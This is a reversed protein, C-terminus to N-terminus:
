NFLHPDFYNIFLKQISNPTRRNLSVSNLPAQYSFGQESIHSSSSLNLESSKFDRLNFNNSALYYVPYISRIQRGIRRGINTWSKTEQCSHSIQKSNKFIYMYIIKGYIYMLLQWKKHSRLTSYSSDANAYTKARPM